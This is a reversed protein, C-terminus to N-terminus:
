SAAMPHRHGVGGWGPLALLHALRAQDLHFDGGPAIHDTDAVLRVRVNGAGFDNAATESVWAVAILPLSLLTIRFRANM